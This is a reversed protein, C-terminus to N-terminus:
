GKDRPGRIIADATSPKTLLDALNELSGRQVKEFAAHLRYGSRYPNGRKSRERFERMADTLKQGNMEWLLIALLVTLHSTKVSHEQLIADPDTRAHKLFEPVKRLDDLGEFQKPHIGLLDRLLCYANYALAHAPLDDSDFLRLACDLQLRAADTKNIPGDPM